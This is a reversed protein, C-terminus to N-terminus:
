GSVRPSLRLIIKDSYTGILLPLTGPKLRLQIRGDGSTAAVESASRARCASVGEDGMARMDESDCRLAVGGAIQSMDLSASYAVRDAFGSDTAGEHNLGGNRSVLTAEFPSNCEMSFPLSLTAAEARGTARDTITGFSGESDTAAVTCKPTIYGTVSVALMTTADGSPVILPSAECAGGVTLGALGLVMTAIASRKRM